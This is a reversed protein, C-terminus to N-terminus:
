KVLCKQIKEENDKTPFQVIVVNRKILKLFKFCEKPKLFVSMGNYLPHFALLNKSLLDEDIILEVKRDKDYIMSFLSVNGPESSILSKMESYDAFEFKSCGLTNKLATLDVKKDCDTILLYSRKEGKREHVLLNKCIVYDDKIYQSFRKYYEKSDDCGLSEKHKICLEYDIGSQELYGCFKRGKSLKLIKETDLLVKKKLLLDKKIELFDM